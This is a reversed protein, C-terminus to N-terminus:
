RPVPARCSGARRRCRGPAAACRLPCLSCAPASRPPLPRMTQHWPAQNTSLNRLTRGPNFIIQLSASCRDGEARQGPIRVSHSDDKWFISGRAPRAVEAPELSPQASVMQGSMLCMATGIEAYKPMKSPMLGAIHRCYEHTGPLVFVVDLRFKSDQGFLKAVKTFLQPAHHRRGLAVRRPREQVALGPRDGPLQAVLRGDRGVGGSLGAAFAASTSCRLIPQTSRRANRVVRLEAASAGSTRAAGGAERSMRSPVAPPGDGCAVREPGACIMTM